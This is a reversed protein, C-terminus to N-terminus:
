FSRPPIAERTQCGIRQESLFTKSRDAEFTRGVLICFFFYLGRDSFRWWFNGVAFTAKEVFTKDPRIKSTKGSVTEM